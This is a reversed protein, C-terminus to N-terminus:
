EGGESLARLVSNAANMQFEAVHRQSDTKADCVCQEYYDVVDQGRAIAAELATTDPMTAIAARAMTRWPDAKASDSVALWDGGDAEYRALYMAKAVREVTPEDPTTVTTEKVCTCGSPKGCTYTDDFFPCTM